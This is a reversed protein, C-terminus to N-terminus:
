REGVSSCLIFNQTNYNYIPLNPFLLSNALDVWTMFSSSFSSLSSRFCILDESQSIDQGSPYARTHSMPLHGPQQGVDVDM